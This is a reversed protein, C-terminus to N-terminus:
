PQNDVHVQHILRVSEGDDDTLNLEITVLGARSSSGSSYSFQCNSLYNAQIASGSGPPEPQIEEINYGQYRLLFRNEPLGASVDCRYTIPDDFIFFRQQPSQLTFQRATFILNDANSGAALVASNVVIYTSQAGSTDIPYIIVRDAGLTIDDFNQLTGLVAFSTDNFTFDLINGSGIGTSVDVDLKARYRGGAVLHLLELSQGDASIRISNPLAARIDRQMRRLASEAVDTLTARRASDVYANIPMTLISVTMAAVIGGVVIVIVMEILTFGRQLTPNMM